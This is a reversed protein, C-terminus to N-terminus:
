FVGEEKEREAYERAVARWKKGQEMSQFLTIQLKDVMDQADTTKVVQNCFAVSLEEIKKELNAIKEKNTM